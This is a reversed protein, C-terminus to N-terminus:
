FSDAFTWLRCSVLQNLTVSWSFAIPALGAVICDAQCAGCSRKEFNRPSAFILKRSRRGYLWRYLWQLVRPPWDKPEYVTQSTSLRRHSFCRTVTVHLYRCGRGRNYPLGDDSYIGDTGFYGYTWQKNLTNLNNFHRFAVPTSFNQRADTKSIKLRNSGNQVASNSCSAQLSSTWLPM